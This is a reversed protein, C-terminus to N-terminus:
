LRMNMTGECLYSEVHSHCIMFYYLLADVLHNQVLSMRHKERAEFNLLLKSDLGGEKLYIINQM